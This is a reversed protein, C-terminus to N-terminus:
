TSTIRIITEIYMWCAIVGEVSSGICFFIKM